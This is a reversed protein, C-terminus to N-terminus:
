YNKNKSYSFNKSKYFRVRILFHESILQHKYCRDCASLSITFSTSCFHVSSLQQKQVSCFFCDFATLFSQYKLWIFKLIIFHLQFCCWNWSNLFFNMWHLVILIQFCDVAFSAVSRKLVVEMWLKLLKFWRIWNVTQNSKPIRNPYVIMMEPYLKQAM